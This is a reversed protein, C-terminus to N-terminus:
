EYKRYEGTPNLNGFEGLNDQRLRNINSTSTTSIIQKATNTAVPPISGGVKPNHLGLRDFQGLASQWLLWCCGLLVLLAKTRNRSWYSAV